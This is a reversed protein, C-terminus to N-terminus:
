EALLYSVQPSKPSIGPRQMRSHEADNHVQFPKCHAFPPLHSSLAIYSVSPFAM